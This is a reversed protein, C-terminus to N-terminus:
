SAVLIACCGHGWDGEAAPSHHKSRTLCALVPLGPASVVQGSLLQATHFARRMPEECAVQEWTGAAADLLWADGLQGGESAGGVLCVQLCAAKEHLHWRPPQMQGPRETCAGTRSPLMAKGHPGGSRHMALSATDHLAAHSQRTAKCVFACSETLSSLHQVGSALRSNCIGVCRAAALPQSPPGGDAKPCGQALM